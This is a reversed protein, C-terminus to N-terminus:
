KTCGMELMEDITRADEARYQMDIEIKTGYPAEALEEWDLSLDAFMPISNFLTILREETFEDKYIIVRKNYM